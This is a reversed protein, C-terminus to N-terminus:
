QEYSFMSPINANVINVIGSDNDSLSTIMLNTNKNLQVGTFLKNYDITIHAYTNLAKTINYVPTHDPMTITNYRHGGVKYIFPQMQAITGNANTTTDISGQLNVFVFADAQPAAGFWMEPHNFVTDAVNANEVGVLMKVTRYDGVPVNAAFYQETELTKLIVKGPITYTSGNTNVLQINSLYMQARTVAIKRGDSTTYVTSYDEVENTDVNTHLHLYFKGSDVVSAPNIINDPRCGTNLAIMIVALVIVNYVSRKM